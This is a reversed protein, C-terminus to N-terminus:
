KPLTKHFLFIPIDHVCIKFDSNLFFDGKQAIPCNQELQKVKTKGAGDFSIKKSETTTSKM